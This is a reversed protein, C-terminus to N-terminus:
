PSEPRRGEVRPQARDKINGKNAEKSGRECLGWLDTSSLLGKGNNEVREKDPEVGSNGPDSGQKEGTSIELHPNSRAARPIAKGNAPVTGETGAVLKAGVGPKPNDLALDLDAPPIL